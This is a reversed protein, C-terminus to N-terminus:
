ELFLEIWEVLLINIFNHKIKIPRKILYTLISFWM